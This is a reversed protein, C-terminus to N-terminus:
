GTAHASRDDDEFLARLRRAERDVRDIDRRSWAPLRRFRIISVTKRTRTITDEYAISWYFVGGSVALQRDAPSVQDFSFTAEEEPSSPDTKDRIVAVFDTDSVEVITGEWQQLLRSQGTAGDAGPLRLVKPGTEVKVPAQNEYAVLLQHGWSNLELKDSRLAAAPVSLIFTQPGVSVESLDPEGSLPSRQNVSWSVGKEPQPRSVERVAAM